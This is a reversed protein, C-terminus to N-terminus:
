KCTWFNEPFINRLVKMTFSNDRENRTFSWIFVHGSIAIFVEFQYWNLFYKHSETLKSFPKAQQSFKSFRWGAFSILIESIQLSFIQPLTENYDFWFTFLSSYRAFLEVEYSFTWLLTFNVIKSSVITMIIDTTEHLTVTFLKYCTKRIIMSFCCNRSKRKWCVMFIEPTLCYSTSLTQKLIVALIKFQIVLYPHM